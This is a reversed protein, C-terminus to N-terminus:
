SRFTLETPFLRFHYISIAIFTGNVVSIKFSKFCLPYLIRFDSLLTSSTICCKTGAFTFSRHANILSILSSHINRLFYVVWESHFILGNEAKRANTNELAALSTQKASMGESLTWGIIKRDALDMVATLYLWGEGTKLYTIDSVWKTSIQDAHFNRNLMNDCVPFKHKSDTTSIKWKKRIISQIGEKRMIRSVRPRSIQIGQRQLDNTIRLSGYTSDSSKDSAKIKKVLDEVAKIKSIDQDGHQWDYYGSTSVQMVKCILSM